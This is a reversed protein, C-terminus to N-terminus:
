PGRLPGCAVHRVVEDLTDDGPRRIVQTVPVASALGAAWQLYPDARAGFSAIGISNSNRVVHRLREAGRISRVAVRESSGPDGLGLVVLHDITVPGSASALEVVLKGIGVAPDDSVNSADLGLRTAADAVLHVPRLFPHATAMAGAVTVPVVDDVLVEAGLCAAAYAVTSSKGAGSSGAVAVCRGAPDDGFRVLSAHLSFVGAHRFLARMVYGYLIAEVMDPHVGPRVDVEVRSVGIVAITFVDTEFVITRDDVWTQDGVSQLDRRDVTVPGPVVDVDAFPRPLRCGGPM